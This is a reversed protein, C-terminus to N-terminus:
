SESPEHFEIDDYRGGMITISLKIQSEYGLQNGLRAVGICQRHELEELIAEGSWGWLEYIGSERGM